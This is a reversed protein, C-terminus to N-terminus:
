IVNYIFFSGLVFAFPSILRLYLPDLVDACKLAFSHHMKRPVIILILTTIFMMWGFIKIFEPFRSNEAFLILAIATFMRLIMEAYNIFNTSAMKKLSERAKGPAFLMLLGVGIIFIGFAIIIWKSIVTMIKSKYNNFLAGTKKYDNSM